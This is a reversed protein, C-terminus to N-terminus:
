FAFVSVLYVATLLAPYALYNVVRNGEGQEGNYYHVLLFAMPAAFYLPSLMTCLLTVMCGVLVLYGHKKRALWMAAVLVVTAAGDAIHLMEVWVIAMAVVLVDILVSKFGKGSYQRIFWLVVMALVLGIVPNRSDLSIFKGDMALNYPIESLAAVGLVRLFYSKFSTTHMVGQVLLFCFLPIACTQLLQAVLAVTAYVMTKDDNMSEMLQEVTLTGVGLITNQIITQGVIGMVLFLLGWTRIVQASNGRPRVPQGIRQSM